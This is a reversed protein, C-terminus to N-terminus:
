EARKYRGQIIEANAQVAELSAEVSQALEAAMAEIHTQLQRIRMVILPKESGTLVGFRLVFEREQMGHFPICKFYIFEPLPDVSTAAVQEFTSRSETLNGVNSDVKRAAEITLKRIAGIAKGTPIESDNLCNINDSWDEIFEAAQKQTLGEGDIKLLAAYAATKVMDLVALNDAHGPASVTDGLNLVAVAKIDDSVFVTAGENHQSTYIAFDEINTTTMTGRARRREPLFRELDHIQFTNPLAITGATQVMGDTLAAHASTIAQSEGIAKIAEANLM